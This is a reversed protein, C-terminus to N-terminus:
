TTKTLLKSTKLKLFYSPTKWYDQCRAIRQHCSKQQLVDNLPHLHSKFFHWIELCIKEHLFVVKQWSIHWQRWIQRWIQRSFKGDSNSTWSGWGQTYYPNSDNRPGGSMDQKIELMRLDASVNNHIIEHEKLHSSRSCEYTQQSCSFPKDSAQSIEREKLHSSRLCEYTQQSCSFSKDSAHSM